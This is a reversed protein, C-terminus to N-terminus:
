SAKQYHGDPYQKWLKNLIEDMIKLGDQLIKYDDWTTIEYEYSTKYSGGIQKLYGRNKLETIRRSFKMPNM